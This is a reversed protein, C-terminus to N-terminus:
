CVPSLQAHVIYECCDVLQDFQLGRYGQHKMYPSNLMAQGWFSSMICMGEM